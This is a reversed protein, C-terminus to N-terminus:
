FRPCRLSIDIGAGNTLPMPRGKVSADLEESRVKRSTTGKIADDHENRTRCAHLIGVLLVIRDGPWHNDILM